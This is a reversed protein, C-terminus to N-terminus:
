EGVERKEGEVKRKEEKGRKPIVRKIKSLSRTIKSFKSKKESTETEKKDKKRIRIRIKPLSRPKAKKIDINELIGEKNIRLRFTAPNLPKENKEFIDKKRKNLIKLNFKKIKKNLEPKNEDIEEFTILDPEIEEFTVYEIEKFETEIQSEEIEFDGFRKEFEKLEEIMKLIEKHTKSISSTSSQNLDSEDM